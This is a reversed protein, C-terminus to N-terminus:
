QRRVEMVAKLFEAYSKKGILAKREKGSPDFIFTAPIAGSWEASFLAFMEDQSDVDAVYVKLRSGMATLFPIIKSDIEDPFDVSLAIVDVNDDRLSDSLLMLDPFEEKCPQCWTAWINLVLIKGNRQEILSSIGSRDLPLVNQAPLYATGGIFALFLVGFLTRRRIHNDASIM